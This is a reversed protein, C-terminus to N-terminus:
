ALLSAARLLVTAIRTSPMYLRMPSGAEFQSRGTMAEHEFGVRWNPALVVAEDLNGFFSRALGLVAIALQISALRIKRDTAM